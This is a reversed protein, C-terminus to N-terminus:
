VYTNIWQRLEKKEIATLQNLISGTIVAGWRAGEYGSDRLATLEEV